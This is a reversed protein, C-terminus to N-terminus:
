GGSVLIRVCDDISTMAEYDEEDLRVGTSERLMEVFSVFDMSDLELETRLDAGPALPEPDTDPAVERLANLVAARATEADQPVNGVTM